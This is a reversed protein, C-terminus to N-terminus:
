TQCNDSLRCREKVRQWQNIFWIGWGRSLHVYTECQCLNEEGCMEAIYPSWKFENIWWVLHTHERVPVRCTLPLLTFLVKSKSFPCSSPLFCTFLSYKLETCSAKKEHVACPTCMIQICVLLENSWAFCALDTETVRTHGWALRIKFTCGSCSKRILSVQLAETECSRESHQLVEFLKFLLSEPWSPQLLASKAQGWERGSRMWPCRKEGDNAWCWVTRWAPCQWRTLPLHPQKTREKLVYQCSLPLFKDSLHPAFLTKCCLTRVDLGSNSGAGTNFCWKHEKVVTGPGM